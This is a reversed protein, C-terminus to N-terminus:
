WVKLEALKAAVAAVEAASQAPFLAFDLVSESATPITQPDTFLMMTNFRSEGFVLGSVWGLGNTDDKLAPLYVWGVKGVDKYTGSWEHEGVPDVFGKGPLWGWWCYMSTPAGLNVTRSKVLLCRVDPRVTLEYELRALKTGDQKKDTEGPQGVVRITRQAPTDVLTQVEVIKDLYMHQGGLNSTLYAWPGNGAQLSAQGNARLTYSVGAATITVTQQDSAVTVGDVSFRLPITLRNGSPALDAVTVSGRYSGAPLKPFTLSVQGSLKPPVCDVTAVKCAAAQEGLSVRVSRADLPNANDKIGFTVTAPFASLNGLDGEPGLQVPKGNLKVWALKPATEDELVMWAPKNVVLWASAGPWGAPDLKLNVTGGAQTATQKVWKGPGVKVYVTAPAALLAPAIFLALLLSATRRM